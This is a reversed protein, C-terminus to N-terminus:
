SLPDPQILSEEVCLYQRGTTLDKHEEVRGSPWQIVIRAVRDRRGVGFTVVLESQSLYSSGSHVMRWQTEGGDLLKVVAGIADRNSKKGQLRFRISRHGNRLDQRLLVPAGGNTTLLVDLDGDRDFDAVALGRGVRPRSFPAGLQGALNQVTAILSVAASADAYPLQWSIAM